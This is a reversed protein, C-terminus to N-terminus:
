AFVEILEDTFGVTGAQTTAVNTYAPTNTIIVPSTVQYGAAKIAEIDFSVLPDGAKVHDGQAVHAEYFKGELEVTDMGIHILIEVGDDTIFGIAHKTPFLIQVLGDAPATVLGESPEIAIGQGMAGTAFVQDDLSSLPVINGQLPSNLIQDKADSVSASVLVPQDDTATVKTANTTDDDGYLTPVKVFMQVAFAIVIALVTGIALHIVSHFSGTAPDIYAPYLFIGMGGMAYGTVNFISLYVGVIGSVICSIIFPTRMPLTYGYIAPETVGFIASILTPLVGKKVKDEKTKLYIAALVGVQTFCPLVAATLIVSSGNQAMDLIAIPVLGWHLGFMVMVQWAAGLIFGYIIPSFDYVAQFAIGIWDSATNAIPGVLLFTLPITVLLTVMPVAFLKLVDPTVKKMFKEIKSAVYIALLIPLVTNYYGGAPLTFNLGFINTAETLSEALGPYVLAGAIAVATYTNMRFKKSASVALVMPLYQFLGDGITNMLLYIGSTQDVGTAALLATVGKLIGAAALTGLFPQFLGSVIDIFQDFLNGKEGDDDADVEGGDAFNGVKLVEEYVEPVHNGIVVQYQGGAQMVTVVGDRKKLYETDAKSEDKLYFRLRTVCHRVEKVNEKGGVKDVIDEALQTYKAM